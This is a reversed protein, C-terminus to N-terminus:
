GCIIMKNSIDKFYTDSLAKFGEKELYKKIHKFTKPKTEKRIFTEFEDISFTESKLFTLFVDIPMDDEWVKIGFITQIKSIITKQIKDQWIRSWNNSYYIIKCNHPNNKLYECLNTLFYHFYIKQHDKSELNIQLGMSKIYEYYMKNSQIFFEDLDQIYINYKRFLSM